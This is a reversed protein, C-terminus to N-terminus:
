PFDKWGQPWALFDQVCGWMGSYFFLCTFEAQGIYSKRGLGVADWGGVILGGWFVFVVFYPSRCEWEWLGKGLVM